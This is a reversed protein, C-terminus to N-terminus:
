RRAPFSIVAVQGHEVTITQGSALRVAYSPQAVWGTVATGNKNRLVDGSQTNFHADRLDRTPIQLVGDRTELPLATGDLQGYLINGDTLVVVEASAAPALAGATLLMGLLAAFLVLSLRRM